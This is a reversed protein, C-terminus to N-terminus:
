FATDRNTHPVFLIIHAGASYLYTVCAIAHVVRIHLDTKKSFVPDTTM